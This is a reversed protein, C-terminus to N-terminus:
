QFASLPSFCHYSYSNYSNSIRDSDCAVVNVPIQSHRLRLNRGNVINDQHIGTDVLINEEGNQLLFGTYPIDIMLDPDLGATMVGKPVNIKGYYLSYIKWLKSM